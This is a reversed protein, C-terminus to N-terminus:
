DEGSIKRLERQLEFRSSTVHGEMQRLRQEIDSFKDKAKKMAQVNSMVPEENSRDRKKSGSKRKRSSLTDDLEADVSDVEEEFRDTVRRYLPKDDMFFYTM